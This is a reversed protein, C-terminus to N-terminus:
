EELTIGALFGSGFGKVQWFDMRFHNATKKKGESVRSFHDTIHLPTSGCHATLFGVM